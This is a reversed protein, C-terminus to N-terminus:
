DSSENRIIWDYVERDILVKEVYHRTEPYGIWALYIDRDPAGGLQRAWRSAAQPGANYAAVGMYPNGDYRGSNEILLGDGRSISVGPNRWNNTGPVAGRKEYHFPMIQMWGLAGARSRVSPEFLSENRAVALLLAPDSEAAVIANRIAGPGPLPYLFRRKEEPTLGRGELEYAVALIGRMDGVALAFGLLAHRDLESGRLLPLLEPVSSPEPAITWGSALGVDHDLAQSVMRDFVPTEGLRDAVLHLADRLFKAGDSESELNNLAEGYAIAREKKLGQVPDPNALTIGWKIWLDWLHSETAALFAQRRTEDAPAMDPALGSEVRTRAQDLLDSSTEQINGGGSELRGAWHATERIFADRDQDRFYELGLERLTRATAPDNLALALVLAQENWQRLRRRTTWHGEGARALVLAQELDALGQEWQGKLLRLESARRLVDMRWGPLLDNRSGLEEYTGADGGSQLRRGRLWLGQLSNDTPPVPFKLFHTDRRAGKFNVAGIGAQFDTPLGSAYLEAPTLRTKSIRSLHRGWKETTMASPVPYLDSARCHAMWLSWANGTDYPGLPLM